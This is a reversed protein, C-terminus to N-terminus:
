PPPRSRTLVPSLGRHDAGTHPYTNLPPPAGRNKLALFVALLVAENPSPEKKRKWWVPLRGFDDTVAWKMAQGDGHAFRWNRNIIKIVGQEELWDRVIEWKRSNWNIETRGAAQCSRWIAEAWAEPFSGDENPDVVLAHEIISLAVSVFRWDIRLRNRRQVVEGQENVDHRVKARLTGVHAAAWNDFKGVEVPCGPAKCKAPDFTMAIRALLYKVRAQRRHENEHWVGTFLGNKHIFALGEEVTAVRRLRRCLELLAAQQREYSNAMDSYDDIAEPVPTRSGCTREAVMSPSPAPSLSAPAVPSSLLVHQVPEHPLGACGSKLERYLYQEDYHAGVRVARLFALASYTEFKERGEGSKAKRQRLCKPLVGSSIITSKDTRMPLGVQHCNFPFVELQPVGNKDPLGCGNEVLLDHVKRGLEIAREIPIPRGTIGFFKASGNRPNVEAAPWRLEPVFQRLLRGAKVVRIVHADEPITSSHRDLDPAVFPVFASNMGVVGRHLGKLHEFVPNWRQRETVDEPIKWFRFGDAGVKKWTGDPQVEEDAFHYGLYNKGAGYFFLADLVGTASAETPNKSFQRERKQISLSLICM